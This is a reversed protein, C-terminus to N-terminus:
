ILDEKDNQLQEEKKSKQENYGDIKGIAYGSIFFIFCYALFILFMWIIGIVKM